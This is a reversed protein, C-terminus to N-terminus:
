RSAATKDAGLLSSVPSQTLEGARSRTDCIVCVDAIIVELLIFMFETQYISEDQNTPWCKDGEYDIV